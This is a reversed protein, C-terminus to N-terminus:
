LGKGGWEGSYWECYIIIFLSTIELIPLTIAGKGSCNMSPPKTGGFWGKFSGKPGIRRCVGGEPSKSDERCYWGELNGSMGYSSIKAM